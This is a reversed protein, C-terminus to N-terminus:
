ASYRSRIFTNKNKRQNKLRITSVVIISQCTHGHRWVCDYFNCCEAPHITTNRIASFVAPRTPSRIYSSLHRNTRWRSLYQLPARPQRISRFGCVMLCVSLRKGDIGGDYKRVLAVKNGTSSFRTRTPILVDNYIVPSVLLLRGSTM